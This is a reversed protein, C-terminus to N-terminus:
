RTIRWLMWSLTSMRKAETNGDVFGSGTIEISKTSQYISLIEHNDVTIGRGSLEAQVMAVVVGGNEPDLMLRGAGTDIAVLKLPGPDRAWLNPDVFKSVKTM